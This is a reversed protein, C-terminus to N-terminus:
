KVFSDCFCFDKNKFAKIQQLRLVSSTRSYCVDRVHACFRVCVCDVIVSDQKEQVSRSSLVELLFDHSTRPGSGAIERRLQLIHGLSGTHCKGTETDLITVRIFIIM